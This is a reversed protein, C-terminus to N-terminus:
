YTKKSHNKMNQTIFSKLVQYIISNIIVTDDFYNTSQTKYIRLLLFSSGFDRDFM